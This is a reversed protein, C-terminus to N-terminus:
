SDLNTIKKCLNARLKSQLNPLSINTITERNERHVDNGRRPPTFRCYGSHAKAANQVALHLEIIRNAVPSHHISVEVDTSCYRM